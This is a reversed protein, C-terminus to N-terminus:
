FTMGALVKKLVPSGLKYTGDKFDYYIVDSETMAMKAVEGVVALHVDKEVQDGFSDVAVGGPRQKLEKLISKLPFRALAVEAAREEERTFDSITGGHKLADRLRRMTVPRTGFEAIFDQIAKSNHETIIQAKRFYEQCEEFSFDGVWIINERQHDKGFALVANAESVVILSVAHGLFALKSVAGLVQPEQNRDVDFVVCPVEGNEQVSDFADILDKEKPRTDTPFECVEWLLALLTTPSTCASSVKVYITYRRDKLLRAVAVSKGCGKPGAILCYQKSSDEGKLMAEIEKLQPIDQTYPSLMQTSMVDSMPLLPAM